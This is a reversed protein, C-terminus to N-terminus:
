KSLELYIILTIRDPLFAEPVKPFPPKPGVLPAPLRVRMTKPYKGPIHDNSVSPSELLNEEIEEAEDVLGQNCEVVIEEAQAPFNFMCDPNLDEESLNVSINSPIQISIKVIDM